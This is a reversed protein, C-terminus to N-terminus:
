RLKRIASRVTDHSSRQKVTVVVKVRLPTRRRHAAWAARGTLKIRIGSYGRGVSYGRFGIRIWQRPRKRLGLASRRAMLRVRGSCRTMVVLSCTVGLRAYRKHRRVRPGTLRLRGIGLGARPTVPPQIETGAGVLWAEAAGATDNLEMRLAAQRLGPGNPSFRVTVPCDQGAPVSIGSCGDASITFDGAGPGTLTAAGVELDADGVSALTFVKEAERGVEIWGFDHEQPQLSAAPQPEGVRFTFTAPTPDPNGAGDIARVAFTHLGDALDTYPQGSECHGFGSEEDSDLRCEFRTGTETSSFRFEVEPAAGVGVPASSIATDPPAIDTAGTLPLARWSDRPTEQEVGPKSYDCVGDPFVARIQDLETETLGPPYDAPTVLKLQCKLVDNALPGGAIQRAALGSPFLSGCTGSDVSATEEAIVNGTADFCSDTLTAPWGEVAKIRPSVPRQDAQINDIWGAMRPILNQVSLGPTLNGTPSTYIVHPVTAGGAAASMRARMSLAHITHHGNETIEISHDRNDLVPIGQAGAGGENMGGSRYAIELSEASATRRGPQPVGDHDLSGVNQNLGIFQAPTITGDRLAGLGYQVGINDIPQRAFGTGPDTGWVNRNGDFVVCRLGTPNTTANYRNPAPVTPPCDAPNFFNAGFAQFTRDCTQEIGGGKVAHKEAETWGAADVFSDVIRCDMLLNAAFTNDPFSNGLISGDLLGPFNNNLMQQAMSGGSGGTGITAKIPAWNESFREKVMSLTEASVHDSCRNGFVNLTSQGFAYGSGVIGNVGGGQQGQHYGAECGGGFNFVMKGNFGQGARVQTSGPGVDILTQITYIARNIVGREVAVAFPVTKGESTTTMAGDAPYPASPDALPLYGAGQAKRYQYTVTAAVSCDADLPAGLGNTPLATTCTFPQQHPGSLIPGTTPHNVLYLTRDPYGPLTAVVTNLEAQPLTIMGRLLNPDGPVPAFDATRDNGGVLVSLGELDVGPPVRLEVLADGGSVMEPRSSVTRISFQESISPVDGGPAEASAQAPVLATAVSLLMAVLTGVLFVARRPGEIGNAGCGWGALDRM